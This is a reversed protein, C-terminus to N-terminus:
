SRASKCNTDLRERRAASTQRDSSIEELMFESITYDFLDSCQSGKEDSLIIRKPRRM